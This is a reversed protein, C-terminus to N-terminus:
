LEFFLSENSINLTKMQHRQYNGVDGLKSRQDM